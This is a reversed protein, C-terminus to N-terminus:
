DSEGTKIADPYLTAFAALAARNNVDLKQYINYLHVKVTGERLDLRRGIEKNSLGDAVLLMVESERPSLLNRIRNRQARREWERQFARDILDQPFFTRGEAVEALCHLLDDPVSDKPLLGHAGGSVASVIDSDSFYGDFFVIRAPLNDAIAAAQVELGTMKPMSLDLVAIDPKLARMAMLAAAGDPCQAAVRFRKDMALMAVLGQLVVPHDDAIVVDVARRSRKM